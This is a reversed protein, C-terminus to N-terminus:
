ECAPSCSGVSSEHRFHPMDLIDLMGKSSCWSTTESALLWYTCPWYYNFVGFHKGIIKQMLVKM